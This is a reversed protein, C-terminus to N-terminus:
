KMVWGGDINIVQGTIFRSADSALFMMLNAIDEPTGRRKIAQNDLVFQNYGEPDPHIKEADTPFAGPSIANVSIGFPGLERALARTMGVLGGKSVVYPFLKAWGGYYTISTMNIISGSGAAKMGPLVAQVCAVAAQVNVRHVKEIEDLDYDEFVKSPYIAANNILVEIDGHQEVIESILKRTKRPDDLDCHVFRAHGERGDAGCVESQLAKGAEENIDLILVEAGAKVMSRVGASGLGGAAGTILVRKGNVNMNIVARRRKYCCIEIGTRVMM